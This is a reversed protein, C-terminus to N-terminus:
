RGGAGAARALLGDGQADCIRAPARARRQLSGPLRGGHGRGDRGARWVRLAPRHLDPEGLSRDRTGPDRGAHVARCRGASPGEARRRAAEVPGDKVKLLGFSVQGPPFRCLSLFNLDSCIVTSDAAFGRLMPFGGALTVAQNGLEWDEVQDRMQWGFDPHSQENLLVRHELRLRSKSGRDQGSRSTFRTRTSTSGWSSCSGASSRVPCGPAGSGASMADPRRNPMRDPKEAQSVPYAPCRWLNFTAYLPAAPVVAAVERHRRDASRPSLVGRRLVARVPSLAARYRLRDARLQEDGHDQSGRSLRASAPGHDAFVGSGLDGGAVAAATPWTAFPWPHPEFSPYSRADFKTWRRNRRKGPHLDVAGATGAAGSAAGPKIAVEVEM